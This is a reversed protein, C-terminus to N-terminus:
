PADAYLPTPDMVFRFDHVRAGRLRLVSVAPLTVARGDGGVFAVEAEWVGSRAVADIWVGTVDHRMSRISAYFHALVDGIAAKGTVPPRGAFRFRADDAYWALLGAPDMRDVEAFYAAIWGAGFPQADPGTM